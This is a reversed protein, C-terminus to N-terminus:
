ADERLAAAIVPISVVAERVRESVQEPAQSADIVVIRDPEREAIELFGRRVRDHFDLDESELRDAGRATARELGVAPEVDFLLTLDPVLDATAFRNLSEVEEIPLGRGYGQYATTSDYFRDCVVVKGVVLAPRIVQEVLQARSAEYLLLEARDTMTEHSPDLLLGRVVEGVPTGGPERVVLVSLGAASLTDALVTLQTSKGTGEGGEFTILIGNAGM